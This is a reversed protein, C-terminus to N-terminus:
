LGISVADRVAAMTDANKAAAASVSSDRTVVSLRITARDPAVQVAGSGSVSVSRVDAASPGSVAAALCFLAVAALVCVAIQLPLNRGSAKVFDFPKGNTNM